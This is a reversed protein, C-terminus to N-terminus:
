KDYSEVGKLYLRCSILYSIIYGGISIFSFLGQFIFIGDPINGSNLNEIFKYISELFSEIDAPLPGFLIYIIFILLIGLLMLAKVNSGKNTGFRVAFPLDIAKLFIQGYFLIILITVVSTMEEGTIATTICCIVTDIIYTCILTLGCMMFIIVYKVYLQGNIGTPTTVSFYAWKKVEDHSIVMFLCPEAIIYGIIISFLRLMIGSNAINQFVAQISFTSEEGFYTVFIMLFLIVSPALASLIIFLRNQYLNKYLLGNM